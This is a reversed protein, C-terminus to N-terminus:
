EADPRQFGPGNDMKSYQFLEREKISEAQNPDGLCWRAHLCFDNYLCRFYNQPTGPTYFQAEAHRKTDEDLNESCEEHLFRLFYYHDPLIYFTQQFHLRPHSLIAFNTGTNPLRNIWSSVDTISDHAVVSAAEVVAQALKLYETIAEPKPYHLKKKSDKGLFDVLSQVKIRFFAHRDSFMSISPAILGMRKWDYEPLRMGWGDDGRIENIVRKHAQRTEESFPPRTAYSPPAAKEEEPIIEPIPLLVPELKPQIDEMEVSIEKKETPLPLEEPKVEPKKQICINKVALAIIVASLLVLVVAGSILLGLSASGFVGFAGLLMTAIAVIAAIAFSIKLTKSPKEFSQFFHLNRSGPIQLDM